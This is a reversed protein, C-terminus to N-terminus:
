GASLPDANGSNVTPLPPRTKLLSSAEFLNRIARDILAVAKPDLGERSLEVAEAGIALIEIMGEMMGKLTSEDM